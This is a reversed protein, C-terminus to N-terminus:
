NCSRVNLAKPHIVLNTLSKHMKFFTTTTTTKNPGHQFLHNCGKAFCWRIIYFIFNLCLFKKDINLTQIACTQIGLQLENKIMYILCVYFLNQAFYCLEFDYVNLQMYVYLFIQQMQTTLYM